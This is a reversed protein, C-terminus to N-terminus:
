QNIQTRQRERWIQFLEVDGEIADAVGRREAVEFPQVIQQRAVISECFDRVQGVERPKPVRIDPGIQEVSRRAGASGDNDVVQGISQDRDIVDRM